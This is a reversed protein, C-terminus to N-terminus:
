ANFPKLHSLDVHAADNRALRDAVRMDWHEEWKDRHINTTIFTFRMERAGLLDCLIATSERSKFRDAEAGIDDLFLVEATILDELDRSTDRSRELQHWRSPWRVFM